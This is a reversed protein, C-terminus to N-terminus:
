YNQLMKLIHKALNDNIERHRPIPQSVKTLPNQYWDHNGGHRIFICGIEELEKILDRRKM